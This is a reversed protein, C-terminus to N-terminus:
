IAGPTRYMSREKRVQDATYPAAEPDFTKWGQKRYAAARDTIRVASRDLVAEVRARDGDPVRATVLTGGRRLGEAYVPAEDDSVGAQSLAGVVGGTTGGAVAGLATTALWGAAV